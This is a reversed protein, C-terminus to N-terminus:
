CERVVITSAAVVKGNQDRIPSTTVVVSIRRGHKHMRETEYESRHKGDRIDRLIEEEEEKRNQPVITMYISKGVIEGQQWGFMMEAAANWSMITGDLAKTWIPVEASQIADALRTRIRYANGLDRISHIAERLGTNLHEYRRQGDQALDLLLNRLKENEESCSRVVRRNSANARKSLRDVLADAREQMREIQKDKNPLHYYFLWFLIAGALGFSVWGAPGTLPGLDQGLMGPILQLAMYAFVAGRTVSDSM